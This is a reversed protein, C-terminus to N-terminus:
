EGNSVSGNFTAEHMAPSAIFVFERKERRPTSPFIFKVTSERDSSRSRKRERETEKRRRRKRAEACHRADAYRHVPSRRTARQVIRSAIKFIAADFNLANGGSRFTHSRGPSVTQSNGRWALLSARKLAPM